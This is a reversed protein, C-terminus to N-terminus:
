NEDSILNQLSNIKGNLKDSNEQALEIAAEFVKDNFFRGLFIHYVTQRSVAAREAVISAWSNLGVKKFHKKLNELENLLETTM